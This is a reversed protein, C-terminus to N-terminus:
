TKELHFLYEALPVARSAENSRYRKLLRDHRRVKGYASMLEALRQAGVLGDESYSIFVHSVSLTSLVETFAREVSKKSCFASYQGYWDRLGGEGVPAPDDERALTELIHYNGAYQRKTYPPDIYCADVDLGPAIDEIRGQAVVHGPGPDVITTRKLRLPQRAQEGFTARYYGYTGAISAVDNVALILDHLLLDHELGIVDGRARWDVLQHRIADIKAANPGTFYARPKSGNAPRGEISYERWFLGPSPELGNLSAIANDYGGVNVFPPDSRVLLRAKAHLVPFTLEDSATVRFGSRALAEAV